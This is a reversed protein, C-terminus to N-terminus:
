LLPSRLKATAKANGTTPPLADLINKEEAQNPFLLSTGAHLQLTATHSVVASLENELFAGTAQNWELIKLCPHM